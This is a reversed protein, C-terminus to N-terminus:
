FESTIIQLGEDRSITAAGAPIKIKPTGFTVNCTEKVTFSLGGLAIKDVIDFKKFHGNQISLKVPAGPQLQAVDEGMFPTLLAVTQSPTMIGEYVAAKSKTAPSKLTFSSKEFASALPQDVAVSYLSNALDTDEFMKWNGSTKIYVKAGDLAIEVTKKSVGKLAPEAQDPTFQGEAVLTDLVGLSNFKTQSSYIQKKSGMLMQKTEDKYLTIAKGVIDLLKQQDSTTEESKQMKVSGASIKCTTSYERSSAGENWAKEFDASKGTDATLSEAHIYESYSSAYKVYAYVSVVLLLSALSLYLWRKYNKM